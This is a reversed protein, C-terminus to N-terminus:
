LRAYKLPCTEFIQPNSKRYVNENEHLDKNEHLLNRLMYDNRIWAKDVAKDDDDGFRKTTKDLKKIIASQCRKSNLYCFSDDNKKMIELLSKYYGNSLLEDFVLPVTHMEHLSKQILYRWYENKWGINNSEEGESVTDTESETKSETESKTESEIESETTVEAMDGPISHVNSDTDTESYESESNQRKLHSNVKERQQHILQIHRRLSFKNVLQKSCIHCEVVM